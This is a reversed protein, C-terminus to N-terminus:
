KRGVEPDGKLMNWLPAESSLPGQSTGRLFWKELKRVRSPYTKSSKQILVLRMGMEGRKRHGYNGSKDFGTTFGNRTDM